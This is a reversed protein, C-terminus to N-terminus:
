EIWRDYAYVRWTSGDIILYAILTLGTNYHLQVAVKDEGYEAPEVSALRARPVNAPDVTALQEQVAATVYPAIGARWEAATKGTTATFARGFGAAVPRWQHQAEDTQSYPTAGPRADDADVESSPLPSPLNGDIPDPGPQGATPSSSPSDAPNTASPAGAPTAGTRQWETQRHLTVAFAGAFVLALLGFTWALIRPNM